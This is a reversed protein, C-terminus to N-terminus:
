KGTPKRHAFHILYGPNNMFTVKVDNRALLTAHLVKCSIVFRLLETMGSPDAKSTKDKPAISATPLVNCTIVFRLM